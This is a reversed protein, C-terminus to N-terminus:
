CCICNFNQIPIDPTSGNDLIYEAFKELANVVKIEDDESEVTTRYLPYCNGVSKQQVLYSALMAQEFDVPIEMCGYESVETVMKYAKGHCNSWPFSCAM